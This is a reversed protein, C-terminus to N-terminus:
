TRSGGGSRRCQPQDLARDEGPSGSSRYGIFPTLATIVGVSAGVMAGLRDRNATIGDVCNVRLTWM